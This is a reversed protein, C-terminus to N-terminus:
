KGLEALLRGFGVREQELRLAPAIRGRRLDDYLTAEDPTLRPLDRDTPRDEKGWPERHALLTERDMLLSRVDPFRTRLQDLIAFGHTDIDGWYHVERGRLWDAQGLADFGYGAGFVVVGCRVEPFALFNIENETIFVRTVPLNLRAFEEAPISLDSFGAIRLAPWDDAHDLVRMPRRLIWAELAPFAQRIRGCSERFRAAPRRMGLLALGDSETDVVAAAPIRNSGM